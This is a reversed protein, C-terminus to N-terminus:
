LCVGLGLSCSLSVHCWGRLGLSGM